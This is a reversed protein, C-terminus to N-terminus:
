FYNFIALSVFDHNDIFQNDFADFVDISDDFKM